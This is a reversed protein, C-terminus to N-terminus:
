RPCRLLDPSTPIHGIIAYVDRVGSAAWLDPEAGVPPTIDGIPSVNPTAEQLVQRRSTDTPPHLLEPTASNERM